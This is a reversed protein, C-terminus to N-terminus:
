ADGELRGAVIDNAAHEIATRFSPRLRGLDEYDFVTGPMEQARQLAWKRLELFQRSSFAKASGIEHVARWLGQDDSM